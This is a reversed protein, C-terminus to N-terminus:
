FLGSVTSKAASAAGTLHNKTAEPMIWLGVIILILAIILAVTSAKM